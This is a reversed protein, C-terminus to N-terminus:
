GAPDVVAAGRLSEGNPAPHVDGAQEGAERFAALDTGGFTLAAIEKSLAGVQGLSLAGKVAAADAWVPRGDKDLVQPFIDAVGDYADGEATRRAKAQEIQLMSWARLRVVLSTGPITYDKEPLFNM